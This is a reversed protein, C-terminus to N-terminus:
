FPPADDDGGGGSNAWPDEAQQHQNGGGGRNGGGSNGRNGGSNRNGGGGGGRNGGGDANWRVVPEFTKVNFIVEMRKEGEKTEYHREHMSGTVSVSTSKSVTDAFREALPEWAQLTVWMENVTDYGGSDNKRSHEAKARCKAVGKGSTTFDLKVDTAVFLEGTTIPLQAM